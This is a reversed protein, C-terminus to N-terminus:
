CTGEAGTYYHPSSLHQKALAYLSTTVLMLLVVREIIWVLIKNIHFSTTDLMLLIIAPQRLLREIIWM